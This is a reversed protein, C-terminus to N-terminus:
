ISGWYNGFVIVSLIYGLVVNVGVGITFPWFSKWEVAHLDRIRTTLGISLFCFVFAWTRLGVLPLIVNPRM